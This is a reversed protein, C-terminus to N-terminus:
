RRISGGGLGLRDGGGNYDSGPRGDCAVVLKFDLATCIQSFLVLPVAWKHHWWHGIRQLSNRCTSLM